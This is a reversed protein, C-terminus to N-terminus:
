KPEEQHSEAEIVKKAALKAKRQQAALHRAESIASKSHPSTPQPTTSSSSTTTASSSTTTPIAEQSQEDRKKERDGKSQCNDNGIPTTTTSTQSHSQTQLDKVEAMIVGDQTLDRQMHQIIKSISSYNIYSSIQLLFPFSLTYNRHTAHLRTYVLQTSWYVWKGRGM